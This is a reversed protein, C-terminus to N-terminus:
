MVGNYSQQFRREYRYEHHEISQKNEATQSGCHEKRGYRGGKGDHLDFKDIVERNSM